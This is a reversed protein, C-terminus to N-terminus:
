RQPRAGTQATASMTRPSSATTTHRPTPCLGSDRGLPATTGPVNSTRTIWQNDDDLRQIKYRTVASGGNDAPATWTLVISRYAATASLTPAGPLTAPTASDSDSAGEAGTDSVARLEFDYATGNTLGSITETGDNGADTWAGLTSGSAAYRYDYSAITQGALNSPASWTLTVQGNGRTATLSPAGINPASLVTASVQASWASMVGASTVARGQFYYTRGVTLGDHVYSNDTLPDVAGGDLQTWSGLWAWLEYRAAGTVPPWSVTIQQYGATATLAPEDPVMDGAVENVRDSWGSPDGDSNFARIQYYYTTGSTLPSHSFSTGTLTGGGLQRWEDVSDWAWLDYSVADDVDNWSLDITDAGTAQATLTPAVPVPGQAYAVNSTDFAIAGFAALMVVLALASYALIRNSQKM